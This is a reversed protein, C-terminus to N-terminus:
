RSGSLYLACSGSDAREKSRAGRNRLLRKVSSLSIGTEILNTGQWGGGERRGCCRSTMRVAASTVPLRM